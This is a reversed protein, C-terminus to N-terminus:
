LCEGAHYTWCESCVEGPPEFDDAIDNVSCGEHLYVWVSEDPEARYISQGALIPKECAECRGDFKATFTRGSM